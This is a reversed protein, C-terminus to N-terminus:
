PTAQIGAVCAIVFSGTCATVRLRYWPDTIAGAATGWRAGATTYPGFTIRTTASGFTDDADSELVATISTGPTGFVHFAAYLTDGAGAAGLEVEAGTAGTASVTGMAKVLNGLVLGVRGDSGVSDLNFPNIAGPQVGFQDFHVKSGKWFKCVGGETEAPGVSHIRDLQALDPLGFADVSDAGFSGHGKINFALDFVGIANEKWGGSRMRTADNLAATVSLASENEDGTYDHSDVYCFANLLVEVPM